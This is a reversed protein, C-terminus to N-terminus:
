ETIIITVTGSCCTASLYSSIGASIEAYFPSCTVDSVSNGGVTGFICGAGFSPINSQYNYVLSWNGEVCQFIMGGTFGCAGGSAEWRDGEGTGSYTLTVTGAWCTCDGTATITATLTQPPDPCCASNCCNCPGINTTSM